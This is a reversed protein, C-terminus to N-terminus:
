SISKYVDYTKEAIKVWSYKNKSYKIIESRTKERHLFLESKFFYDIKKAIDEPDGQKAIFGTVGEIIDEKFSGVDTAIVPLGFSYALVINATQYINIYPLVL